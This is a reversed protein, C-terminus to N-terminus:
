CGLHGSPLLHVLRGLGSPTRGPGSGGHAQSPWAELGVVTEVAPERHGALCLTSQSAQGRGVGDAVM